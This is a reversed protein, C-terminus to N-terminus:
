FVDMARVIKKYCGSPPLGPLLDIQMVDGPATFYENPDQLFTRLFSPDIRSERICQECLRIWERILQALNPYYYKKRDIITKTIGPHEGFDGHLSRLVESLVQNPILIQYYKMSVTKRFKKRFLLGNKLIIRDENAQYHELRKDTTLLM